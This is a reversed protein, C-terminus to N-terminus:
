RSGLNACALSRDVTKYSSHVEVVSPTALITALSVDLISESTGDVLPSLAHIIPPKVSACTGHHIHATQVDGPPENVVHLEVVTQGDLLKLAVTGYENSGGEAKLPYVKGGIGRPEASVPVAALLLTSAALTVIAIKLTNV